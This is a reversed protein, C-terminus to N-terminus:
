LLEDTKTGSLNLSKEISLMQASVKNREGILPNAKLYEQGGNKVVISTGAENILRTMEEFSELLAEYRDVKELQIADTEDIQELLHNRVAESTKTM